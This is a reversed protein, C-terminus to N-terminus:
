KCTLGILPFLILLLLTKRFCPVSINYSISIIEIYMLLGVQKGALFLCIFLPGTFSGVTQGCREM